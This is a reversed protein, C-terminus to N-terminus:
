AQLSPDHPNKEMLAKFAALDARIVRAPDMGLLRGVARGLTGAPLEYLLEVRVRTGGNQLAEFEVSGANFLLEGERSRWAIRENPV